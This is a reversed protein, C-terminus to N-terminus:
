VQQWKKHVLILHGGQIVVEAMMVGWRLIM